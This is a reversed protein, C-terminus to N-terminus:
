DAKLGGRFMNMEIHALEFFFFLGAVVPLEEWVLKEGTHRIESM